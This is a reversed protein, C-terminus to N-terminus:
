FTQKFNNLEYDNTGTSIVLVDDKSLQKVTGIISDKLTNSNSGPKVVSLIEYESDLVSQLAVASGKIHSDGSLVLKRTINSPKASKNQDKIASLLSDIYNIIDTSSNSSAATHEMIVGNIITPIASITSIDQDPEPVQLDPQAAKSIPDEITYEAPRITSKLNYKRSRQSTKHSPFEQHSVPPSDTYAHDPFPYLMDYRNSTPIVYSNYPKYNLTHQSFQMRKCQTPCLFTKDSDLGDSTKLNPQQFQNVSKNDENLLKIILKQSNIEEQAKQLKIELQACNRCHLTPLRGTASPKIHVSAEKTASATKLECNPINTIEPLSKVENHVTLIDKDPLECHVHNNLSSESCIDSYVSLGSVSCHSPSAM